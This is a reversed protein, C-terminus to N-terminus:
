KEYQKKIQILQLLQFINVVSSSIVFVVIGCSYLFLFGLLLRLTNMILFCFVPKYLSYKTQIYYTYLYSLSQILINIAMCVLMVSSLSVLENSLSNFLLQIITTPFFAFVFMAPLTIFLVLTEAQVLINQSTNSNIHPVLAVGVSSALVIPANILVCVVGSYVGYIETAQLITYTISLVNVIFFSEILVCIPVICNSLTIPVVNKILNLLVQKKSIKQNLIKSQKIINKYQKDTKSKIFLYVCAIFESISVGLLALAVQVELGYSVFLLPLGIGLAFKTVQEIIQSIGTPVTNKLGQFIGRYVCIFSVLLVSPAICFYGFTALKNGQLSSINSAFTFLLLTLLLSILGFFVFSINKLVNIYAYNQEKIKLSVIKSLAVPIGNSSIILLFSYLPFILQYIGIGQAGIINVLPIRYIVGIIKCIFASVCLFLASKVLGGNFFTKVKTKIIDIM